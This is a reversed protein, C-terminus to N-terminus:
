FPYFQMGFPDKAKIPGIPDCPRGVGEANEAMVRFEYEQFEQVDTVDYTLDVM